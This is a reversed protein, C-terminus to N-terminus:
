SQQGDQLHTKTGSVVRGFKSRRPKEEETKKGLGASDLSQALHRLEVTWFETDASKIRTAANIMHTKAAIAAAEPDRREIASAIAMHEVRTQESFEDRQDENARTVRIAIYLFQNLFRLLELFLPNGTAQAISLHFTLTRSRLM